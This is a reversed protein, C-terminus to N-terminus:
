TRFRNKVRNGDLVGTGVFPMKEEICVRSKVQVMFLSSCKRSRAFVGSQLFQPCGIDGIGQLVAEENSIRTEEFDEAIQVM